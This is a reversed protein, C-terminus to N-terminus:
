ISPGPLAVLFYYLWDLVCLPLLFGKSCFSCVKFYNIASFNARQEWVFTNSESFSSTQAKATKIKKLATIVVRINSALYSELQICMNKIQYTDTFVFYNCTEPLCLSHWLLIICGKWWASSSGKRCLFM